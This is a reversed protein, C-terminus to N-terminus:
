SNEAVYRVAEEIVTRQRALDGTLMVWDKWLGGQIECPQIGPKGILAQARKAGLKAVVKDQYMGVVLKGNLKYAPMGFMKGPKAEPIDRMVQELAAAVAQDFEPM